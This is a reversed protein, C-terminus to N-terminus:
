RAIRSSRARERPFLRMERLYRCMCAHMTTSARPLGTVITLPQGHQTVLNEAPDNLSFGWEERTAPCIGTEVKMRLLWRRITPSFAGIWSSKTKKPNSAHETGPSDPWIRGEDQHPCRTKCSANAKEIPESIATFRSDYLEAATVWGMYFRKLGTSDGPLDKGSQVARQKRPSSKSSHERLTAHACNVLSLHMLHKFGPAQFPVALAM